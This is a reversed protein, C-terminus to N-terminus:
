ADELGAWWAEAASASIRYSRGVKKALLAKGDTRKIADRVFDPSVSKLEALQQITYAKEAERIKTM